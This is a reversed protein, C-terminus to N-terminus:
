FKQFVDIPDLSFYFIEMQECNAVVHATDEWSFLPATNSLFGSTHAYIEISGDSKNLKFVCFKKFNGDHKNFNLSNPNKGM